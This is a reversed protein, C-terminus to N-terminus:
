HSVQKDEPDPLREPGKVGHREEVGLLGRNAWKWPGCRRGLLRGHGGGKVGRGPGPTGEFRYQRESCSVRVEGFDM